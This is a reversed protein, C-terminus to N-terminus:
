ECLSNGQLTVESCEWYVCSRQDFDECLYSNPIERGEWKM